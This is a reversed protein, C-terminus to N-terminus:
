AAKSFQLPPFSADRDRLMEEIKPTMAKFAAEPSKLERAGHEFMQPGPLFILGADGRADQKHTPARPRGYTSGWVSEALGCSEMVSFHIRRNWSASALAFAARGLDLSDEAAKIRTLISLTDDGCKSAKLTNLEVRFGAKELADIFAVLGAGFNFIEAAEYTSSISVSTALRVIPRSRDQVPAPTVMCFVDGAAALHPMPYAGAVDLGYSQIMGFDSATATVSEVASKMRALGDHWGQLAFGRAEEYSNTGAFEVYDGGLRRSDRGTWPSEGDAAKILSEVSDFYLKKFQAM